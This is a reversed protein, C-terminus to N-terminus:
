TDHIYMLIEKANEPLGWEQKLLTGANAGAHSRGHSRAHSQPDPVVHAARIAAVHSETNRYIVSPTDCSDIDLTEETQPGDWVHTRVATPAAMTPAPTPGPTPTATPAPTPADTAAVAVPAGEPHLSTDMMAQKEAEASM